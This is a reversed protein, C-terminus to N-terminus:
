SNILHKDHLYSLFSMFSSLCGVMFSRSISLIAHIKCVWGQWLRGFLRCLGDRGHSFWDFDLMFSIQSALAGIIIIFADCDLGGDVFGEDWVMVGYSSCLIMGFSRKPCILCM